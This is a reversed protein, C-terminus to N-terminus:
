SSTWIRLFVAGYHSAGNGYGGYLYDSIHSPPAQSSSVSSHIRAAESAGAPVQNSRTGSTRMYPDQDAARRMSSTNAVMRGWSYGWRKVESSVLTTADHVLREALDASRM